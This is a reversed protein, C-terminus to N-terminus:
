ELAKGLRDGVPDVPDLAQSPPPMGAAHQRAAGASVHRAGSSAPLSLLAVSTYLKPTSSHSSDVPFRGQAPMICICARARPGQPCNQGKMQKGQLPSARHFPQPHSAVGFCNRQISDQM